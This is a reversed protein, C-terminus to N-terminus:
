EEDKEQTKEYFAILAFNLYPLLYISVGIFAISAFVEAITYTTIQYLIAYVIMIVIYYLLFSLSLKIYNWKNNKMLESSKEVIEKGSLDQNDYLVYSTLTYSLGKIFAYIYSGFLLIFAIIILFSSSNSRFTLIVSLILIIYSAVVLGIPLLMKLVTRFIVIWSNKFSQLGITIFDLPSVSENRSLKVLSAIYGYAFPVNIIILLVYYILKLANNTISKGIMSLLFNILYYVIAVLIAKGWKGQLNVKAEQKLDSIKM